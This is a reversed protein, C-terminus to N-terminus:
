DLLKLNLLFQKRGIYLSNNLKILAPINALTECFKRAIKRQRQKQHQDRQQGQAPAGRHNDHYRDRQRNCRSQQRNRCISKVKALQNDRAKNQRKSQQDVIRNDNDFVDRSM